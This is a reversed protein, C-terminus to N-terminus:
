DLVSVLPHAVPQLNRHRLRIVILHASQRIQLASHTSNSCLYKERMRVPSRANRAPTIHRSSDRYRDTYGSSGRKKHGFDAGIELGGGARIITKGRRVGGRRSPLVPIVMHIQWVIALTPVQMRGEHMPRRLRGFDWATDVM